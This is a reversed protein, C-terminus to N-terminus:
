PVRGCAAPSFRHGRGREVDRDGVGVEGRQAGGDGAGPPRILDVACAPLVAGLESVQLLQHRVPGVPEVPGGLFGREVRRGLVAGLEPCGPEFTEPHVEHVLGAHPRVRQREDQGVTPRAGEVFPVLHDAGEGVGARVTSVGRIREVDDDGRHGPVPEGVDRRRAAHRWPHDGLQPHREHGLEPVFPEGGGPAVPARVDGREETEIVGVREDANM